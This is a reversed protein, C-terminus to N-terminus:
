AGTLTNVTTGAVDPGGAKYAVVYYLADDNQVPFSYHGSADSITEAILADDVTRFLQVICSGLPAGTSDQTVGAVNRSGYAAPSSRFISPGGRIPSVGGPGRPGMRQCLIAM